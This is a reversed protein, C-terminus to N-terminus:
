AFAADAFPAVWVKRESLGLDGGQKASGLDQSFEQALRAFDEGGQARKLVQEARARVAADDKPDGVQFLIHRVRRQEGQTYADPNRAKQEEFYAQLQADSVPIGASLEALSIEVYRLNVLEPTMYDAPHATYWANIAAEDPNALAAFHAAPLNLWALERQQGMLASIKRIEGPTAFSSYHLASDLQQLQVNRRIMAEIEGVDRGQAKLVAVAHAQDFRGAVQFAPIRAMEKLLEADSVRYGLEQARSILAETGIFDDLVKQKLAARQAEDVQGNDTRALQALQRQYAERVENVPIERRQGEGRLRRVSRGTSAGSYSRRLLPASCSM